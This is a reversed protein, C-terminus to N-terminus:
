LAVQFWDGAPQGAVFEKGVSQVLEMVFPNPQTEAEIYSADGGLVRAIGIAVAPSRSMGYECHVVIAGAQQRHKALFTWIQEAQQKNMPVIGRPVREGPLPEADHFQLSVVGLLGAAKRIRPKPSKPDSISIVVYPTHAVIGNEIDRRGGVIFLM